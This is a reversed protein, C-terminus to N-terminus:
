EWSAVPLGEVTRLTVRAGEFDQAPSSNYDSVPNRNESHM